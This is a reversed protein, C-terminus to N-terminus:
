GSPFRVRFSLIVPLQPFNTSAEIKDPEADEETFALEEMADMTMGVKFFTGFLEHM